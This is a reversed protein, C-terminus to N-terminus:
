MRELNKGNDVFELGQESVTVDCRMDIVGSDATAFSAFLFVIATCRQVVLLGCLAVGMTLIQKM